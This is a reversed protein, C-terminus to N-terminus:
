SCIRPCRSDQYFATGNSSDPFEFEGFENGRNGLFKKGVLNWILKTLEPIGLEARTKLLKM